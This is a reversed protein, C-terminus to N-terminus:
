KYLVQVAGFLVKCSTLILDAFLTYCCALSFVFLEIPVLVNLKAIYSIIESSGIKNTQGTGLPIQILM